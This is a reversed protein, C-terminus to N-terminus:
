NEEEEVEEEPSEEEWVGHSNKFEQITIGNVRGEENHIISQMNQLIYQIHHQDMGYLLNERHRQFDKVGLPKTLIDAVNWYTPVFVLQVIQMNIQERIFQIKRNIHMTKQINMFSKCIEIASKNDVFLITPQKQPYGMEELLHRHQIVKLVGKDIAKIESETSSHSITEERQSFTDFAGTNNNLFFCGGVRKHKYSADVFGFLYIEDIEGGIKIGLDATSELYTLIYKAAKFHEPKPDNSGISLIGLACLIDPRTHDALYRLKGTIPLLKNEKEAELQIISHLINNTLGTIEEGDNFYNPNMPINNYLGRLNPKDIILSELSEKVYKRQCLLMTNESLNIFELGLYKRFQHYTKVSNVYVSYQQIFGDIEDETEAGILMDDVFVMVIMIINDYANRKVYVCQDAITAELGCLNLMRNMAQRWLYAAQKEGYISNNVKVIMKGFVRKPLEMYINDYDNKSEAFAGGVDAIKMKWAKILIIHLVLITSSKKITPAYTQYYNYGKIQSYGCLVLRAKYRISMDVDFKIDLVFRSKAPSRTKYTEYDVITFAAKQELQKLESDIAERWKDADEGALAEEVTRPIRPLGLTKSKNVYVTSLVRDHSHINTNTLVPFKIGIYNIEILPEEIEIGEEETRIKGYYQDIDVYPVDDEFFTPKETLGIPYDMSFQLLAQYNRLLEDENEMDPNDWDRTEDFIVDRRVYVKHAEPAWVLYANKAMEDYGIMRCELAKGTWKGKMLQEEKSVHFVGPAYFPVLNSIDPRKGTVLQYPTKGDFGRTRRPTRNLVYIAYQIAYEWFMLPTNYIMMASRAANIVTEMDREIWGNEEHKYPPSARWLLQKSLAWRQVERSLYIKDSDTQVLKIRFDKNWQRGLAVVHNYVEDIQWTTDNKKQKFRAILYKSSRFSYLDFRTSKRIGKVPLPGKDDIAMQDMPGIDIELGDDVEDPKIQFAKMKGKMCDPCVRMKMKYIEEWTVGAGNITGNKVALKIAEIDAHNMRIHLRELPNLGLIASKLKKPASGQTNIIDQRTHQSDSSSSSRKNNTTNQVPNQTINPKISITLPQETTSYIFQNSAVGGRVLNIYDLYYLRDKLYGRLRLRGFQDYLEMVGKGSTCSWGERDLKPISLLGEKVDPVWYVREIGYLTGYGYYRSTGGDPYSIAGKQEIYDTLHERWPTIHGTAGSDIVYRIGKDYLGVLDDQNTNRNNNNSNISRNVYLEEGESKSGIVDIREGPRNMLVDRYTKGVVVLRGASRSDDGEVVTSEGSTVRPNTSHCIEIGSHPTKLTKDKRKHTNSVSSSIAISEGLTRDVSGSNSKMPGLGRGSRLAIGVSVNDRQKQRNSENKDNPHQRNKDRSNVVRICCAMENPEDEENSDGSQTDQTFAVQRSQNVKMNRAAIESLGAKERHVKGSKKTKTNNAKEHKNKYRCDNSAHNTRKCYKCPPFQGKINKNDGGERLPCNRAYHGEGNCHYCLVAKEDKTNNVRQGDGHRQINNIMELDKKAVIEEFRERLRTKVQNYTLNNNSLKIFNIIEDFKNTGRQIARLLSSIEGDRGLNTDSHERIHRFMSEIEEIFGAFTQVRPNYTFGHLRDLMNLKMNVQDQTGYIECMRRWARTIQKNVLFDRIESKVTDGLIIQFSKLMKEVIKDHERKEDRYNKMQSDYHNMLAPRSNTIRLNEAHYIKHAEQTEKIAVEEPLNQEQIEELRHNRAGHNVLRQQTMVDEVLGQVTPQVGRFEDPWHYGEPPNGDADLEIPEENLWEREGGHSAINEIIRRKAYAWEYSSGGNWLVSSHTTSVTSRKVRFSESMELFDAKPKAVFPRTHFKNPKKNSNGQYRNNMLRQM